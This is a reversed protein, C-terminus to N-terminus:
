RLPGLDVTWQFPTEQFRGTLRLARPAAPADASSEELNPPAEDGPARWEYRPPPAPDGELAPAAPFAVFREWRLDACDDLLVVRDVMLAGASDFERRESYDLRTLRHETYVLRRREPAGPPAEVPEIAYSARALGAGPFLAPAGTVFQLSAGDLLHPPGDPADLRVGPRRERWQREFLSRAHHLRLTSRHLAQDAAWDSTQAWLAGTLGVLAVMIAIAVLLELLTMARPRTM